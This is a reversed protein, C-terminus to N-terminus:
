PVLAIVMNLAQRDRHTRLLPEPLPELLMLILEEVEFGILFPDKVNQGLLEAFHV